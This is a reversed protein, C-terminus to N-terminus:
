ISSEVSVFLRSSLFEGRLAALDQISGTSFLVCEVRYPAPGPNECRQLQYAGSPGGDFNVTWLESIFKSIQRESSTSKAVAVITPCETAV